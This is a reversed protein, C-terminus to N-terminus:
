KMRVPGVKQLHKLAKGLGGGLLGLLLGMLIGLVTLHLFAGAFTQYAFYSVMSCAGTSLGREAWEAVLFIGLSIGSMSRM